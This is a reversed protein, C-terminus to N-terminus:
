IPCGQILGGLERDQWYAYQLWQEFKGVRRYAEEQRVLFCALLFLSALIEPLFNM